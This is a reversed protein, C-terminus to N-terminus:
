LNRTEASRIRETVKTKKAWDASAVLPGLIVWLTREPEISHESSDPHNCLVEFSDIPFAYCAINVVVTCVCTM